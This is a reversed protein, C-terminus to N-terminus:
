RLLGGKPISVGSEAAIEPLDIGFAPTNTRNMPATM